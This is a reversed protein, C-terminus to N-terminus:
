AKRRRLSTVVIGSLMALGGYAASPLPVAVPGSEHVPEFVGSLEATGKVGILGPGNQTDPNGTEDFWTLSTHGESDFNTANTEVVLLPSNATPEGGGAGAFTLTNGDSSRSIVPGPNGGDQYKGSVVTTFDGFASYKTNGGEEGINSGSATLVDLDYLFTLKGDDRRLVQTLFTGNAPIHVLGNDDSFDMTFKKTMESIVTGSPPVFKIFPDISVTGGPAVSYTAASANEVFCLGCAIGAFAAARLFKTNM